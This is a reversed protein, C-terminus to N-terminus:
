SQVLEYDDEPKNRDPFMESLTTWEGLDGEMGPPFNPLTAQEFAREIAREGDEAEVVISYEALACLSVRYKSM